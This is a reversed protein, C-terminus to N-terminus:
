EAEQAKHERNFANKAAMGLTHLRETLADLSTVDCVRLLLDLDKRLLEVLRRFLDQVLSQEFAGIHYFYDSKRFQVTLEPLPRHLQDLRASIWAICNLLAANAPKIKRIFYDRTVPAVDLSKLIRNHYEACISVEPIVKSKM